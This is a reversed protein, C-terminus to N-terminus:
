NCHCSAKQPLGLRVIQMTNDECSAYVMKTKLQRERWSFPCANCKGLCHTITEKDVSHCRGHGPITIEAHYDSTVTQCSQQATGVPLSLCPQLMVFRDQEQPRANCSTDSGTFSAPSTRWRHQWQWGCQQQARHLRGMSIRSVLSPQHRVKHARGLFFVFM